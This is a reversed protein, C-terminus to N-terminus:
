AFRVQVTKADPDVKLNAYAFKTYSLGLGFRSYRSSTREQFWSYGFAM